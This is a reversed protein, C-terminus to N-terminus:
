KAGRSERSTRMYSTWSVAGLCFGAALALILGLPIDIYWPTEWEGRLRLLGLIIGTITFLPVGLLLVGEAFVHRWFGRRRM